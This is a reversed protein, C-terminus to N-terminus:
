REIHNLYSKRRKEGPYITQRLGVHVKTAPQINVRAPERRGKTSDIEEHQVHVPSGPVGHNEGDSEVLHLLDAAARSHPFGTLSTDQIQVLFVSHCDEDVVFSFESIWSLVSKSMERPDKEPWVIDPELQLNVCVSYLYINKELIM